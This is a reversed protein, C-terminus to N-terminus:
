LCPTCNLWDASTYKLRHSHAANCGECMCGDSVAPCILADISSCVAMAFVLWMDGAFGCFDHSPDRPM